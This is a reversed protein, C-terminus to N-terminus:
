SSGRHDSQALRRGPREYFIRQNGFYYVPVPREPGGASRAYAGYNISRFRAKTHAM